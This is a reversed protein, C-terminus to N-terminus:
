SLEPPPQIPKSNNADLKKKWLEILRRLAFTKRGIVDLNHPNIDRNYYAMQVLSNFTRLKIRLNTLLKAREPVNDYEAITHVLDTCDTLLRTMEPAITMRGHKTFSKYLSFTYASLTQQLKWVNLNEVPDKPVSHPRGSKKLNKPRAKNDAKKPGNQEPQEPQKPQRAKNM